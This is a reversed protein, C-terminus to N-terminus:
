DCRLFKTMVEDFMAALDPRLAKIERLHNYVGVRHQARYTDWHDTLEQGLRCVVRCLLDSRVAHEHRSLQFGSMLWMRWRKRWIAAHHPGDAFPPTSAMGPPHLTLNYEQFIQSRFRTRWLRLGQSAFDSWMSRTEDTVAGEEDRRNMFDRLLRIDPHILLATTVPDLKSDPM